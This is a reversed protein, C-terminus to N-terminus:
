LSESSEKGTTTGKHSMGILHPDEIVQIMSKLKSIKLDILKSFHLGSKAMLASSSLTSQWSLIRQIIFKKGIIM